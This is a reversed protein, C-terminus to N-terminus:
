KNILRHIKKKLCFATYSIRMLSQLESTHEESREGEEGEAQPQTQRPEIPRPEARDQEHRQRHQHPDAVREAPPGQAHESERSFQDPLVVAAVPQDRGAPPPRFLPTDPFLTDTRTSRLPRRIM